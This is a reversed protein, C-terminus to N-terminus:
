RPITETILGNQIRGRFGLMDPGLTKSIRTHETTSDYRLDVAVTHAPNLKRIEFSSIRAEEFNWPVSNSIAVSQGDRVYQGVLVAGSTGSFSMHTMGGYENQSAMRLSQIILTVIAILVVLGAGIFIFKKM